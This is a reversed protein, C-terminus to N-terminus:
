GAEADRGGANVPSAMKLLDHAAELVESPSIAELCIPHACNAQPCPRCAVPRQLVRSRRPLSCPGFLAPSEPGFLAVVPVKVAAAIHMPGSDNTILLDCRSLFYPLEHLALQGVLNM